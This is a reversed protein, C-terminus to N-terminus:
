AYKQEEKSKKKLRRLTIKRKNRARDLDIWHAKKIFSEGELNDFEHQFIRPEM